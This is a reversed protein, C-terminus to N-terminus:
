NCARSRVEREAVARAAIADAIQAYKGIERTRGHTTIHARWLGTKGCLSVGVHGSTGRGKHAGNPFMIQYLAGM